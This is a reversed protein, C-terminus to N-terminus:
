PKYKSMFRYTKVNRLFQEKFDNMKDKDDIYLTEYDEDEKGFRLVEWADPEYGLWERLMIDYGALQFLASEYIGKSSKFDSLVVKGNRKAVRDFTGAVMIPPSCVIGEADIIEDKSGKEEKWKKFLRVANQVEKIPPVDVEEEKEMKNLIHHVITGIDAARGVKEGSIYEENGQRIRWKILAESQPFAKNITTCSVVPIFEDAQPKLLYYRHSVPNFKLEFGNRKDLIYNPARDV